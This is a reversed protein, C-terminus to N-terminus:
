MLTVSRTTIIYNNTMFMNFLQKEKKCLMYLVEQPSNWLCHILGYEMKPRVPMRSSSWYCKGKINGTTARSSLLNRETIFSINQNWSQNCPQSKSEQTYIVPKPPFKVALYVEMIFKYNLQVNNRNPQSVSQRGWTHTVLIKSKAM